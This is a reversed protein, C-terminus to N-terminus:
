QFVQGSPSLFENMSVLDARKMKRIKASHERLKTESARTHKKQIMTTEPKKVPAMITLDLKKHRRLRIYENRAADYVIVRSDIM